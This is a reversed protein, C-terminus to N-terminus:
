YHCVVPTNVKISNYLQGAINTPLNVCGHSGGNIYITGGFKSRWSSADHLGIGRNFAMWYSVPTEYPWTGDPLKTGRLVRNRQKFYLYYTGAPTRREPDTHKGTVCDSSLVVSGNKVYYVKQKTLDVEVFTNGLGNNAYTSQVGSTEPKRVGNKGANIDNLLGEVEKSQNLKLGYNGGTVSVQRNYALTFTKRNGINNIKKALDKVFKQAQKKFNEEDRYYEGKEDVSLWTQLTNGDLVVNGSTTQYTIHANAYKKSAELLNNLQKDTSKIKPLVYGGANLINTERKGCAYADIIIDKLQDTKITSGNKEEIISFDNNKYTVKADVPAVQKDSALHNLSNITNKLQTEDVTIIDKLVLNDDKFFNTFWLWHNQQKFLSELQNNPNYAIGSEKQNITETENDIFTMTLSHSQIQQNFMEHVDKLSMHSVDMKNITTHSLFTNNYFFYGGLYICLIAIGAIIGLKKLQEKKLKDHKKQKSNEELNEMNKVEENM